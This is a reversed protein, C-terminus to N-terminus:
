ASELHDKLSDFGGIHKGSFFVQPVTRLRKERFMDQAEPDEGVDIYEFEIEFKAALDKARDCWRCNETGYITYM